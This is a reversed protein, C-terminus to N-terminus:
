AADDHQVVAVPRERIWADIESELWGVMKGSITRRRPFRGDREMRWLTSRGLGTRAMVDPTRLIREAM